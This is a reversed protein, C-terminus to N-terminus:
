GRVVVERCRWRSGNQMGEVMVMMMDVVAGPPPASPPASLRLLKPFYTLLILLTKLLSLGLLAGAVDVEVVVVGMGVDVAAAGVADVGIADVEAGVVSGFSVAILM